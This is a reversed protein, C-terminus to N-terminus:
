ARGLAAASPPVHDGTGRKTWRRHAFMMLAIAVVGATGFGIYSFPLTSKSAAPRKDRTDDEGTRHADQRTSEGDVAANYFVVSKSVDDGKAVVRTSIVIEMTHDRTTRYPMGFNDVIRISLSRLVINSSSGLDPKIRRDQSPTYVVYSSQMVASRADDGATGFKVSTEMAHLEVLGVRASVLGQSRRSASAASTCKQLARPVNEIIIDAFRIPLLDVPRLHLVFTSIGGAGGGGAADAEALVSGNVPVIGAGGPTTPGDSTAGEAVQHFFHVGGNREAVDSGLQRLLSGHTGYTDGSVLALAVYMTYATSLCLSWSSSSSRFFWGNDQTAAADVIFNSADADGGDDAPFTDVGDSSQLARAAAAAGIGRLLELIIHADSVYVGPPVTVLLEDSVYIPCLPLLPDDALTDDNGDAHSVDLDPLEVRGRTNSACVQSAAGPTLLPGLAEPAYLTFPAGGGARKSSLVFRAVRQQASAPAARVGGFFPRVDRATVVRTADSFRHVTAVIDVSAFADNLRRLIDSISRARADSEPAELVVSRGATFAAVRLTNMGAVVNEHTRPLCAHVIDVGVVDKFVEGPTGEDQSGFHVTYASPTTLAPFARDASDVLIHHADVSM